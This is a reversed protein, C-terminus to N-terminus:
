IPLRLCVLVSERLLSSIWLHLVGVNCALAQFRHCSRSHRAHFMCWLGPSRLAHTTQTWFSRHSAVHHIRLVDFLHFRRRFPDLCAKPQLRIVPHPHRPLLLCGLACTLVARIRSKDWVYLMSAVWRNSFQPELVWVSGDSIRNNEAQSSKVGGL